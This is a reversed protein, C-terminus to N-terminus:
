GKQTESGWNYFELNRKRIEGSLNLNKCLEQGNLKIEKSLSTTTSLELVIGLSEQIGINVGEHFGGHQLTPLVWHTSYPLM